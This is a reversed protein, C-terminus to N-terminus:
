LRTAEGHKLMKPLSDEYPHATVAHRKAGIDTHAFTEPKTTVTHTVADLQALYGPARM